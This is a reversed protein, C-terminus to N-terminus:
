TTAVINFGIEVIGGGEQDQSANGQSQVTQGAHQRDWRPNGSCLWVILSCTDAFGVLGDLTTHHALLAAAGVFAIVRGGHDHVTAADTETRIPLGRAGATGRGRRDLADANRKAHDSGEL